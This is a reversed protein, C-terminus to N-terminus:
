RRRRRLRAARRRTSSSAAARSSRRPRHRPPAARLRQGAAGDGGRRREPARGVAARGAVHRRRDARLRAHALLARVAAGAPLRVAHRRAPARRRRRRRHLLARDRAGRRHRRRHGPRAPVAAAPGPLAPRRARARRPAGRHGDLDTCGVGGRGTRRRQVAPVRRGARAPRRRCRALAGDTRPRRAARRAGDGPLDGPRRQPLVAGHARRQGLAAPGARVGRHRAAAHAGHALVGRLRGRREDVVSRPRRRRAAARRVRGRHAPLVARGPQARRARSPDRDGRVRDKRM